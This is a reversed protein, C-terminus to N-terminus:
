LWIKKPNQVTVKKEFAPWPCFSSTKDGLKKIIFSYYKGFNNYNILYIYSYKVDVNFLNSGFYCSCTVDLHSCLTTLFNARSVSFNICLRQGVSLALSLTSSSCLIAPSPLELLHEKVGVCM